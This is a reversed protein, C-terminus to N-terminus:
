KGMTAYGTLEVYGEGQVPKEQKTGMVTVEGEWYIQGTTKRTDLEQDKLVPVLRVHLGQDPLDLTWGSPYTVQTHPSTWSGTAVLQAAGPQLSKAPNDPPVITGYSPSIQDLVGRLDFLMLDTGDNMQLSVWDWGGNPMVLFNGWQRDKWSLGTVDKTVGHDTLTGQVALRTESYYYSDGVDGFSILGNGGHLAPPREPTLSLNIAYGPMTAKLLDSAGKQTLSWDQDTLDLASPSADRTWTRQDYSFQQRQHDTVAFHAAYLVPADQRKAQFVVFEFGYREGTAATLHGTYYWWETLDGHPADDAPLQIPRPTPTSTPSVTRLPQHPYTSCGALWLVTVLMLCAKLQQM